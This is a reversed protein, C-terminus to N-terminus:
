KRLLLNLRLLKTTRTGETCWACDDDTIALKPLSEYSSEGKLVVTCQLLRFCSSPATTTYLLFDKLGPIVNQMMNLPDPRVPGEFCALGTDIKILCATGVRLAYVVAGAINLSGMFAMWEIGLRKQQMKFGDKLVGHSIFM